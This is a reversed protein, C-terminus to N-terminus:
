GPKRARSPAVSPPEGPQKPYVPPWPADPLGAAEDRAALDLLPALDQPDDNMPQWPDGVSELRAPALSPICHDNRQPGSSRADTTNGMVWTPPM